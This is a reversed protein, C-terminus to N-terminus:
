LVAAAVPLHAHGPESAACMGERPGRRQARNKSMEWIDAKNKLYCKQAKERIAFSTYVSTSQNKENSFVKKTCFGAKNFFFFLYLKKFFSFTSVGVTGALFVTEWSERLRLPRTPSSLSEQVSFLRRRIRLDPVKLRAPPVGQFHPGLPLSRAKRTPPAPPPCGNGEARSSAPCGRSRQRRGAGWSDLVEHNDGQM